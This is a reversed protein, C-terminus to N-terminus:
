GDRQEDLRKKNRKAILKLATQREQESMTPWNTIRSLSGDSNVVVPGLQDMKIPQGGVMITTVEGDGAEVRGSAGDGPAPLALTEDKGEAGEEPPAEIGLLEVDFWLEAHPPIRGPIGNEGYAPFLTPTPLSSPPTAVLPGQM